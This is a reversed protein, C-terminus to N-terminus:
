AATESCQEGNWRGVRAAGLIQPAANAFGRREERSPGNGDCEQLHSTNANAAPAYLSRTRLNARVMESFEREGADAPGVFGFSTEM